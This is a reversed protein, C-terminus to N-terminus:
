LFVWRRNQVCAQVFGIAQQFRGMSGELVRHALVFLSFHHATHIRSLDEESVDVRFITWQEVLRHSKGRFRRVVKRALDSPEEPSGELPIRQSGSFEHRPETISM